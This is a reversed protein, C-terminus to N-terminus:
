EIMLGLEDRWAQANMLTAEEYHHEEGIAIGAELNLTGVWERYESVPM